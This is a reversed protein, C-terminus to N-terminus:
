QNPLAIDFLEAIREMQGSLYLYGFLAELGTAQSYALPDQNKPAAHHSHANGGRRLVDAEAETLHPQIRQCAQAQAGANVMAVARKHLTGANASSDLLRRRVLLDWVTDGIFALSLPNKLKAETVSM